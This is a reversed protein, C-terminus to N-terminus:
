FLFKLTNPHLLDVGEGANDYSNYIFHGAYLKWYLPIICVLLLFPILVAVISKKHQQCLVKIKLFPQFRNEWPWLLPILVALVETVRMLVMLGLCIGMWFATRTKKEKHFRITLFL